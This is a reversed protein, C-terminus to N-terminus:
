DWYQLHGRTGNVIVSWCLHGVKSFSTAEPGDTSYASEPHSSSAPRLTKEQSFPFVPTM